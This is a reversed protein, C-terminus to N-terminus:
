DRHAQENLHKSLKDRAETVTGNCHLQKLGELCALMGYTLLQQEKKVTQMDEKHAVQMKEIIRDQANQRLYWRYIAFIVSFIAIVAAIFAALAIIDDVSVTVSRTATTATSLIGYCAHM